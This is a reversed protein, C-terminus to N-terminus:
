RTAARLRILRMDEDWVEPTARWQDPNYDGGHLFAPCRPHIPPFRQTTTMDM